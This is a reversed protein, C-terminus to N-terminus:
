DEDKDDDGFIDFNFDDDSISSFPDEKEMEEKSPIKVLETQNASFISEDTASNSADFGTRAYFKKAKIDKTENHLINVYGAQQRFFHPRFYFTGSLKLNPVKSFKLTSTVITGLDRERMHILIVNPEPLTCNTILNRRGFIPM